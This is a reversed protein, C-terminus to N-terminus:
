KMFSADACKAWFFSLCIDKLVSLFWFCMTMSGATHSDITVKLAAFGNLLICLEM